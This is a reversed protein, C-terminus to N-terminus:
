DAIVVILIVILLIIIITTTSITVTSAGGALDNEAARAQAALRELDAGRLMAAGTEAREISLGAKSAIKRVEPRQLLAAIAERDSQERNVREQVAADLARTSIVHEQAQVAPVTLWASLGIVLSSRLGRM